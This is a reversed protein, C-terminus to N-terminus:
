INENIIWYDNIFFLLNGQLKTCLTKVSHKKPVVNYFPRTPTVNVMGIVTDTNGFKIGVILEDDSVCRLNYRKGNKIRWNYIFPRTLISSKNRDNISDYKNICNVQTVKRFIFVFIFLVPDKLIM